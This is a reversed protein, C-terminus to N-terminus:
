INVFIGIKCQLHPRWHCACHSYGGTTADACRFTAAIKISSDASHPTGMQASLSLFHTGRYCVWAGSAFWECFLGEKRAPPSFLGLGGQGGIISRLSLASSAAIDWMEYRFCLPQRNWHSPFVSVSDSGNCKFKSQNDCTSSSAWRDSLRFCAGNM